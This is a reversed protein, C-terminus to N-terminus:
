RFRDNRPQTESGANLNGLPLLIGRSHESSLLDLAEDVGKDLVVSDIFDGLAAAIAVELEPPVDLIDNVSGVFGPLEGKRSAELLLRTGPTYGTLLAEAQQFVELQAQLGALEAAKRGQEEVSKQRQGEAKEMKEQHASLLRQSALFRSNQRPQQNM